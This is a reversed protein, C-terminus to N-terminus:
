QEKSTDAVAPRSVERRAKVVRQMGQSSVLYVSDGPALAEDGPEQTIAVVQGRPLRIFLEVATRTEAGMRSALQDAAVGCLVTALGQVAYNANRAGVACLLGGAGGAAARTQVQVPVHIQVEHVDIVVGETVESTRRVQGSTFDGPGYSTQATAGGIFAVFLFAFIARM